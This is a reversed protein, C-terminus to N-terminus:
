YLYCMATQAILIQNTVTMEGIAYLLHMIQPLISAKLYQLYKPTYCAAATYILYLVNFALVFV